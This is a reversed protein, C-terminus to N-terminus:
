QRAGARQRAIHTPNAAFETPALGPSVPPSRDPEAHHTKSSGSMAHQRMSPKPHPSPISTGSTASGWRSNKNTSCTTLENGTSISMRATRIEASAAASVRHSCAAGIAESQADLGRSPVAATTAASAPMSAAAPLGESGSWAGKRHTQELGGRRPWVEPGAQRDIHQLPHNM